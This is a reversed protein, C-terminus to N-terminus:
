RRAKPELRCITDCKVIERQDVQAVRGRWELKLERDIITADVGVHKAVTVAVERHHHIVQVALM